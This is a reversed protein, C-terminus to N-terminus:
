AQSGQSGPRIVCSDDQQGGAHRRSVHRLLETRSEMLMDWMSVSFFSQRFVRHSLSIGIIVSEGNELSEDASELGAISGVRMRKATEEHSVLVAITRTSCKHGPM